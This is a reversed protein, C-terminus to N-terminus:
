DEQTETVVAPANTKARAATWARSRRRDAMHRLTEKSVPQALFEALNLPEKQSFMTM